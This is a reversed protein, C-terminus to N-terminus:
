NLQIQLGKLDDNMRPSQASIVWLVPGRCKSPAPAEGDTLYILCNYKRYNADYYDTVPHFSTGGRGTIILDQNKNFKGISSISSDCQVLTIETGTRGIHHIENFFDKLEETSVSGSTDIAVLIHRKQKHKMGPNELFRFNPKHRSTKTYTKISGGVFRRIYGRWNFKPPTLESLKDLIEKMERPITGRSKTVQDAVEKLIHETQAKILKKTADDLAEFEEWSDHNPVQIETIQGNADIKVKIGEGSGPVSSEMGALMADLNPCQGPCKSGKLLEDYYYQTGGKPKLNLEPYTSPLQPGPPLHDEQILQNIEIDMAINAIKKNTLHSWDTIHFFAIHLLEHKLLGIKQQSNLTDWFDTNLYLQYNIGLRSVGATPVAKNNWQKNLMILFLGYFPEKLMLDKSAKALEEAKNKM